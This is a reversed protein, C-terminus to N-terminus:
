RNITNIEGFHYNEKIGRSLDVRKCNKELMM